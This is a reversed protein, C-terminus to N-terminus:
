ASAWRPPEGRRSPGTPRVLAFANRARGSWVEEVAVVAAGAARVTAQWTGPSVPTDPDLLADQGDLAALNDVHVPSHVAILEDRTAPRPHFGTRTRSRIAGCIAFSAGCANLPRPIGRDPTTRWSLPDTILLTPAPTTM